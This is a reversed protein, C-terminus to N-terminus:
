GDPESWTVSRPWKVTIEPKQASMIADFYDGTGNEDAWQNM